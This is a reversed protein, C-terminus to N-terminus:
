GIPADDAMTDLVAILDALTTRPNVIAIRAVTEGAHVTPTVFAFGDALLRESWAHHDDADWGIRRFVVISLEPERVLEFEPRARIIDALEHTLAVQEAVARGYADTGHTALSFWFPLGRARRTLHIALDSPNFADDRALVDLYGAHQTHAARALAPDRYVLACADFPAFLWKHPDVIFSDAREIGAFLGRHEPSALAALGYAGDVHFWAGHAHTVDAVGALDDIIGFQTTGASAVVAFVDDRGDLARELADGTLRGDADVPVAVVDVDMVAAASAVSSHADESCALVWRAPRERGEAVRRATAVHRAAVLASLNGITGGQVFVGGASAPLGALGALWAIAENEAHVAGAGELWSGAHVSSAGVILDFLLSSETPAAPIFSLFRPHDASLCAPALVEAYVRLAEEGGLGEPTVTPGAAAALEAPTLAIDLPPPDMRMRALAYEVVARALGETAADFTHM